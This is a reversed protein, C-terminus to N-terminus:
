IYNTGRRKGTFAAYTVFDDFKHTKSQRQLRRPEVVPTFVKNMEMTSEYASQYLHEEDDENDETDTKEEISSKKIPSHSEESNEKM